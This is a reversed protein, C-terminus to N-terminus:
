QGPIWQDYPGAYNRAASTGGLILSRIAQQAAPSSVLDKSRDGVWDVAKDTAKYLGMLGPLEKAADPLISGGLYKHAALGTGTMLGGKILEPLAHQAALGAVRGGLGAAAGAATDEGVNKLYTPWSQDPTWNAVASKIGEHAAGALEPGVGPVANLLTTPSAISGAMDAGASAIPGLRQRAADLQAKQLAIGPVGMGAENGAVDSFDQVSQPAKLAPGGKSWPNNWDIGWGSDPQPADNGTTAAPADGTQAPPQHLPVYGQDNPDVPKPAAVAAKPPPAVVPADQKQGQLPVYGQDDDAAM